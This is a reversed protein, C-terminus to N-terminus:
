KTVRFDKSVTTAAIVATQNGDENNSIDFGARTVHFTIRSMNPLLSLDNETISYEGIEDPITIAGRIHKFNNEIVEKKDQFSPSYEYWLILGNTNLTDVNWSVITGVQFEETNINVTLLEPIYVNNETNDKNSINDIKYSIEKGFLSSIDNNTKTKLVTKGNNLSYNKIFKRNRKTAMISNRRFRNQFDITAHSEIKIRGGSPKLTLVKFYDNISLTNSKTNNISIEENQCSLM